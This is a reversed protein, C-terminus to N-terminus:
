LFIKGIQHNEKLCCFINKIIKSQLFGFDFFNAKKSDKETQNDVEDSQKINELDLVNEVSEKNTTGVSEPHETSMQNMEMEEKRKIQAVVGEYHNLQKKM